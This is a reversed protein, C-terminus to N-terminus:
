MDLMMLRKSVWLKKAFFHKARHKTVDCLFMRLLAPSLLVLFNLLQSSLAPSLFVSLHSLTSYLYATKLITNENNIIPRLCLFSLHIITHVSLQQVPQHSELLLLLTQLIKDNTWCDSVNKGSALDVSFEVSLRLNVCASTCITVCAHAMASPRWVGVPFNVVGGAEGGLYLLKFAKM